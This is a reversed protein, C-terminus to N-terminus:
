DGAGVSVAVGVSSGVTSGVSGGAEVGPVSMVGSKVAVESAMRVAAGGWVGVRSSVGAGPSVGV